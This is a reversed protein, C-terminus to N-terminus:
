LDILRKTDANHLRKCNIKHVKIIHDRSLYGIIEENPKPKCCGAYTHRINKLSEIEYTRQFKINNKIKETTSYNPYITKLFQVKSIFKQGIGAYAADLTNYPLKSDSLVKEAKNKDIIPLNYKEREDNIIKKGVEIYLEVNSERIFHNIKSRAKETKVYKLWDKSPYGGVKTIIEVVDGNYLVTKLPMIRNNIKAGSCTNGINTHVAYAFDIPCSDIPLDIIKGKPTFVFIKKSFLEGKIVKIFEKGNDINEIKKLENLWESASKSTNKEKYNWHAWPGIEANEHMEKTRIQIEFINGEEDKVTTHISQYGSSKPRAIYDYIRGPIPQYISHILGLTKYCDELNSVVVRLAVIDFIHSIDKKAKLKIFLSYLHKERASITEFDISNEKLIKQAKHKVNAIVKQPNKYATKAIKIFKEYEEPYAYPFSLDELLGKMEGMGLREAIPAFIEITERAYFKQKHLNIYQLTRINHLRDYLKIIIIRLDSGTAMLIKRYNDVEALFLDDESFFKDKNKIKISSIKTVGDVIKAIETGFKKEIESFSTKTDEITDHLLAAIIMPEEFGDKVLNLAIALPHTIYPEGSKRLQGFHKENAFFFAEKILKKSKQNFRTLSKDLELELEKQM